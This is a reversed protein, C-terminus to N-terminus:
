DEKAFPDNPDAEVPGASVPMADFASGAPLAPMNAPPLVEQKVEGAALAKVVLEARKEDARRFEDATLVRVAELKPAYTPASSTGNDKAETSLRWLLSHAKVGQAEIDRIMDRYHRIAGASFQVICYEDKTLDWAWLQLASTCLDEKQVPTDLGPAWVRGEKGGNRDWFFRDFPCKECDAGTGMKGDVCKSKYFGQTSLGRCVPKNERGFLTRSVRADLIVLQELAEFYDYNGEANKLRFEGARSIEVSKGNIAGRYSSDKSNKGVVSYFPRTESAGTQRDFEPNIEGGVAQAQKLLDESLILTTSM